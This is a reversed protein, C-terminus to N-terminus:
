RSSESILYRSAVITPHDKRLIFMQKEEDEESDNSTYISHEVISQSPDNRNKWVTYTEQASVLEWDHKQFTEGESRPSDNGM